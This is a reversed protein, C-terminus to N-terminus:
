QNEKHDPCVVKNSCYCKGGSESKNRRDCNKIDTLTGKLWVTDSEDDNKRNLITQMEKPSLYDDPGKPGQRKRKCSTWDMHTSM